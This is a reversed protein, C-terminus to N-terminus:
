RVRRRESRTSYLATVTIDVQTVALGTLEDLRQILHARVAKTTRAVSAPYAISLRVRLQATMDDATASVDASRAEASGGLTEGLVRNTAGGVDAVETVAQTAIREVVRDALTTQGPLDRGTDVGHHVPSSITATV